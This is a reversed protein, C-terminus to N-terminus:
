AQLELYDPADKITIKRTNEDKHELTIKITNDNEIIHSIKDAWEIIVVSNPYCMDDFGLQKFQMQNDLRYADIHYIDLRGFYENVLTFTPSHVTNEDIADAGAAIGKVLRTKGAGLNGVLTIIEGGKLQAGIRKGLGITEKASKSILQM